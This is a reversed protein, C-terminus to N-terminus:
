SMPEAPVRRTAPPTRRRSFRQAPRQPATMEAERERRQRAEERVVEQSAPRFRPSPTPAADEPSM